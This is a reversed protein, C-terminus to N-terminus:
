KGITPSVLSVGVHSLDEFSDNLKRTRQKPTLEKTFNETRMLQCIKDLVISVDKSRELGGLKVLVIEDKGLIEDPHKDLLLLVPLEPKLPNLELEELLDLTDQDNLKIYGNERGLKAEMDSTENALTKSIDNKFSAPLSVEVIYGKSDSELFTEPM